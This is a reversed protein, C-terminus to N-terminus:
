TTQANVYSCPYHILIGITLISAQLNELKGLLMNANKNVAGRVLQESDHAHDTHADVSKLPLKTIACTNKQEALLLARVKAIDAATYLDVTTM